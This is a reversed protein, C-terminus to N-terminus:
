LLHPIRGFVYEPVRHLMGFMNHKGTRRFLISVIYNQKLIVLFFQLFTESGHTSYFRIRDSPVIM